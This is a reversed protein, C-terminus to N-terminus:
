GGGAARWGGREAGYEPGVLDVNVDEGTEDQDQGAARQWESEATRHPPWQLWADVYRRGRGTRTKQRSARGASAQGVEGSTVVTVATM